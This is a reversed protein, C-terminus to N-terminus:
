WDAKTAQATSAPMPRASARRRGSRGGFVGRWCGSGAGAVLALSQLSWFWHPFSIRSCCASERWGRRRPPALRCCWGLLVFHSLDYHAVVNCEVPHDLVRGAVFTEPDAAPDAQDVVAWVEVLEGEV